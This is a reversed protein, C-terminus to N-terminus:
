RPMQNNQVVERGEAFQFYESTLTESARTGLAAELFRSAQRCSNGVFGRTEVRTTGDPHVIVDITQSM